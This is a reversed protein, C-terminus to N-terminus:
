KHIIRVDLQLRSIIVINLEVRDNIVGFAAHCVYLICMVDYLICFLM